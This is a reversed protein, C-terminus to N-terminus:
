QLWANYMAEGNLKVACRRLLTWDPRRQVVTFVCRLYIDAQRVGPKALM